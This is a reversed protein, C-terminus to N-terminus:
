KATVAITACAFGETAIAAFALTLAAVTTAAVLRLAQNISVFVLAAQLM